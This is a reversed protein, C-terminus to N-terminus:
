DRSYHVGIVADDNNGQSFVFSFLVFDFFLHAVSFQRACWGVGCCNLKASSAMPTLIVDDVVFVSTCVGGRGDM